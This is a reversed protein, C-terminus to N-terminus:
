TASAAPLLAEVRPWHEDRLRRWEMKSWPSWRDPQEVLERDVAEASMWRWDAIETPNIQPEDTTHGAFVWCLEHESGTEDYRAQYEFKYLFVANSEMGLEERLRRQVASEVDEGRRPHSCCSNSWILPWLPKGEARQQMLVRGQDDFLFVSFARHLVGDGVHAEAKPLHGVVRDESDVLILPEDDFSVRQGVPSPSTEVPPASSIKSM